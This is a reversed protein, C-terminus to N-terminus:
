NDAQVGSHERRSPAKAKDGAADRARPAVRRLDEALLEKRRSLPLTEDTWHEATERPQYTSM